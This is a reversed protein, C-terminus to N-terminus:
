SAAEKRGRRGTRGAGNGGARDGSGGGSGGDDVGSATPHPNALGEEEDHPPAPESRTFAGQRARQTHILSVESTLLLALMAAILTTPLVQLGSMETVVLTSGIPTKTVGVNIAAMFAAMMVVENTHPFVVHSARGLAVGMFFMPIIFGGRWGSSLTVLTGCFKAAAAILFAALLAKRAAVPNVQAEGFTLAYPSWFALLGLALGGTVPRAFTPLKRFTWQLGAAAYTFLAAVAAGGLGAALAWLLDIHHIHGVAGLHWVPQLGANTLVTYVAYGSLAGIVSPALAEYYELGGRHLIELAFIASGLPAGFLVTFGAAMGTITLVRMEDRSLNGRRGMWGGLSGTTQVLPAEPGMGGGSAICLLSVPILSRLDRIDEPGGSVHINNVLLEVDGPNGLIHTLLAVAGGVGVMIFLHPFTAWHTPWLGRELVHMSGVFAAGVLGGVIGVLVVWGMLRRRRGLFGEVFIRRTVM